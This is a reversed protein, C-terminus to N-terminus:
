FTQSVEHMIFYNGHETVYKLAEDSLCQFGTCATLYRIANLIRCRWSVTIFSITFSHHLRYVKLVIAIGLFSCLRLQLKLFIDM